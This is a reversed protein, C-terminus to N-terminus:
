GDDFLTRVGNDGVPKLLVACVKVVNALPLNRSEAWAVIAANAISEVREFTVPAPQCGAACALLSIAELEDLEEIQQYRLNYVVIWAEGAVQVVAVLREDRGSYAKASHLPARLERAHRRNQELVVLHESLPLRRADEDAVADGLAEFPIDADLTLDADWESFAATRLIAAAKDHRRRLRAFVEAVKETLETRDARYLVNPIFSYLYVDRDPDATMRLIRGARQFLTEATGPPDYSIVSSADQLNVGISDADTCILVDVPDAVV